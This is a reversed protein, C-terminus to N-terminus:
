ALIDIMEAKSIKMEENSVTPMAIAEAFIRLSIKLTIKVRKSLEVAMQLMSCYEVKGLVQTNAM